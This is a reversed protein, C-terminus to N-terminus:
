LGARLDSPTVRLRILAGAVANRQSTRRIIQVQGAQAMRRLAKLMLQREDPQVDTEELLREACLGAPHEALVSLLRDKRSPVATIRLPPASV